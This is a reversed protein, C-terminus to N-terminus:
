DACDICQTAYTVAKLRAVAIVGGCDECAGYGGVQLRTLAQKIHALENDLEVAIAELV